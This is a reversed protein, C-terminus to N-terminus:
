QLVYTSADLTHAYYPMKIHSTYIYFHRVLRGSNIYDFISLFVRILAKRELLICNVDLNEPLFFSTYCTKNQLFLQM